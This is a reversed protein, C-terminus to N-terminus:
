KQILNNEQKKLTRNKRLRRKKKRQRLFQYCIPCYTNSEDIMQGCRKCHKHPYIYQETKKKYRDFKSM